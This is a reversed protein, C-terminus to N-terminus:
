CGCSFLVLFVMPLYVLVRSCSRFFGLFYWSFCVVGRLFGYFVRKLSGWPEQLSLPMHRALNLRAGCDGSSEM